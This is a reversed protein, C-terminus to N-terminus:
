ELVRLGPAFLGISAGRVGRPAGAHLCGRACSRSLPTGALHCAM